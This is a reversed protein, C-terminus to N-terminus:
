CTARRVPALLRRHPYCPILIAWAAHSIAVAALFWGELPNSPWIRRRSWSTSGPRAASLGALALLLLQM